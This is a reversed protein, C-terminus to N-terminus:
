YVNCSIEKKFLWFYESIFCMTHSHTQTHPHSPLKPIQLESPSFLVPSSYSAALRKTTKIKIKQPGQNTWLRHCCWESLWHFLLADAAWRLSPSWPASTHTLVCSSTSWLLRRRTCESWLCSPAPRRKRGEMLRELTEEAMLLRRNLM